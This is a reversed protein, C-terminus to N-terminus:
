QPAQHGPPQAGNERQEKELLAAIKAKFDSMDAPLMVKQAKTKIGAVMSEEFAFKRACAHCIKLHQQVKQTEDPSLERDVFDDLRELAERCGYIDIGLLNIRFM